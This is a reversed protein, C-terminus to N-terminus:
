FRGLPATLLKREWSAPKGWESISKSANTFSFILGEYSESIICYMVQFYALILVNNVTQDRSDFNIIPTKCVFFIFTLLRNLSVLSM